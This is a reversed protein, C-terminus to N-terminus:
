LTEYDDVALPLPEAVPADLDEFEDMTIDESEGLIKFDDGEEEIMPRLEAHGSEGFVSDMGTFGVSKETDVVLTNTAPVAAAVAAAAAAAPAVPPPVSLDIAPLDLVPEAPTEVTPVPTPTAAATEVPTPVPAVEPTATVEEPAAVEPTAAVQIVDDDDEQLSDRLISKVPLLNRIAQLIGEELFRNVENTNKQQDLSSGSDSFLYINSWL